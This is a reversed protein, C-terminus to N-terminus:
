IGIASYILKWDLSDRLVDSLRDLERNQHVLAGEIEPVKEKIGKRDYVIQLLKKTLEPEDFFGHIYTGLVNENSIVLIDRISKSAGEREIISEGMHIEYGSVETGSLPKYSGELDCLKVKVQKLTKDKKFETKIPLLTLGKEDGGGEEGSLDYISDGLMQFGGCIGIILSGKNSCEIIKSYLGTEKLWRIDSLTNKTGPIIIIDAKELADSSNIYSLSVGPIGELITFDTYNSIFPLRVVVISVKSNIESKKNIVLRESVSDEEDLDLDVYPVVGAFPIDCYPKFMSLGPELLSVDGRFKNIILGKIRAREDEPMLNVTGLLQAFVGGPDINGALLVPADLINALGMNVIDNERLNIEVPSGAGEIVVIDSDKALREYAAKIDPIFKTKMKFYEAARMNGYPIGNIIVQSTTDGMPKLLIPNMDSSPEIGAAAAQLAQARGIEKGDKTVFSNLAMNQSKFPAVRYGDQKLIRLIGATLISKGAGSMTGQIMLNKAM